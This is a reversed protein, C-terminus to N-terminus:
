NNKSLIDAEKNENRNVHELEWWDFNELLNVVEFKLRNMEPNKARWEGKVQNVVLLSDGKISIARIGNEKALKLLRLLSIYEARNNTGYGISDSFSSIVDGNESKILGGISMEGPNPTCSGDFYGFFRETLKNRRIM